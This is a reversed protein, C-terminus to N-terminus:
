RDESDDLSTNGSPLEKLEKRFFFKGFASTKVKDAFVLLTNVVSNSRKLAEQTQSLSTNKEQLQQELKQIYSAQKALKQELEVVKKDDPSSSITTNNTNRFLGLLDELLNELSDSHQEKQPFINKRFELFDYINSQNELDVLENLAKINEKYDKWLPDNTKLHHTTRKRNLIFSTIKAMLIKKNMYYPPPSNKEIFYDLSIIMFLEDANTDEGNLLNEISIHNTDINIFSLSKLIFEKLTEQTEKKSFETYSRIMNNSPLKEKIAINIEKNSTASSELLTYIDSNELIYPININEQTSFQKIISNVPTLREKIGSLKRINTHFSLPFLFNDKLIYISDETSIESKEEIFKNVNNKFEQFISPSNPMGKKIETLLDDFSQSDIKEPFQSKIIKNIETNFKNLVITSLNPVNLNQKLHGHTDRNSDDKWIEFLTDFDISDKEHYQILLNDKYEPQQSYEILQQLLHHKIEYLNDNLDQMRSTFIFLNTIQELSIGQKQLNEIEKNFSKYFNKLREDTNEPIIWAGNENRKEKWELLFDSFSKMPSNSTSLLYAWSDSKRESKTLQNVSGQAKPNSNNGRLYNLSSIIKLGINEAKNRKTLYKKSDESLKKIDSSSIDKLQEEFHEQYSFNGLAMYYWCNENIKSLKNTYYLTLLLIDVPNKDIDLNSIDSYSKFKTMTEKIGYKELTKNEATVGYDIFGLMNLRDFLQELLQKSEIIYERSLDHSINTLSSPIRSTLLKLISQNTINDINHEERKIAEFLPTNSSVYKKLTEYFIEPKTSNNELLTGYFYDNYDFNDERYNTHASQYILYLISPVARKKANKLMRQMYFRNEKNETYWNKM